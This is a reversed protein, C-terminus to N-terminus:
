EKDPYQAAIAKFEEEIELFADVIDPDFHEGRDTVILERAKDHSFAPKYVRKSILADYVDALAMLRASVPIDDGKLGKPYGTGNWREHHGEAIELAINLFSDFGLKKIAGTLAVAGLSAHKKMFEFEDDSHRGPKLLIADPIGVKGIDHLPASNYLLHITKEDLSERFRPHNKLHNALARVYLRTREIHEGTEPDRVEALSALSTITAEQTLQLEKTREQVLSELNANIDRLENEIKRLYTIDNAAFLVTQDEQFPSVQYRFVKDKFTFEFDLPEQEKLSKKSLEVYDKPLVSEVDNLGSTPNGLLKNGAPNTYIVEGKKSIKYVPNPNVEPFRALVREQRIYEALLQDSHEMGYQMAGLVHMTAWAGIPPLVVAPIWYIEWVSYGKVILLLPLSFVLFSLIAAIPALAFYARHDSFRSFSRAYSKVLRAMYLECYTYDVQFIRSELNFKMDACFRHFGNQALMGGAIAKRQWTWFGAKKRNCERIVPVVWFLMLMTEMLQNSELYTDFELARIDRSKLLKHLRDTGPFDIKQDEYYGTLQPESQDNVEPKITLWKVRRNRLKPFVQKELYVALPKFALILHNYRIKLYYFICKGWTTSLLVKIKGFLTNPVEMQYEGVILKGDVMEQKLGLDKDKKMTLLTKM